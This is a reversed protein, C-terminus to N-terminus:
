EIVVKKVAMGKDTTVHLFYMGKTNMILKSQTSTEVLRGAIDYVRITQINIDGSVSVHVIGNSPVPYVTVKDNLMTNENLGVGKAIIFYNPSISTLATNTATLRIRAKQTEPLTIREVTLSDAAKSRGLNMYLTDEILLDIVVSDVGTSTWKVWSKLMDYYWTEGGIPSTITLAPVVIKFTGSVANVLADSVKSIRIIANNTAAENFPYSATGSSALYKGITKFPGSAATQLEVLVSDVNVSAWSIPTTRGAIITANAAPATVTILPANPDTIYTMTNFNVRNVWQPNDIFPNRNKQVSYIYENRAIELADPPDQQHWQLLVAVDQSAPLRWTFGRLGNYRVLMYFLARALNGKQDDKPEYVTKGGADTGKKGFGTPSVTTVNVVVGFPLNSRVGNANTQDAPFLHHLDNYEPLEGGFRREWDTSGDNSPMWSQAFTHERTLIGPNNGQGTWWTFPDAYVYQLGTYVCTVAKKAATTDRALYNNVVVPAYNGYFITDAQKIKNQLDTIFTSVLPNVANYYTGPQANLSTTSASAANTIKYNEFGEPGNFPFAAFTYNTNALIYNPKLVATDDGIYAVQAGGIYDGRQYTVGDVPVETISTAQKRLVLYKETTTKNFSVTLGYTKVASLTLAPVANAPETALTGGVAYLNITFPSKEPDSNNITMTAQRTGSAGPNFYVSFTDTGGFNTTSDFAGITFDSANAGSVVISNTKLDDANGTNQITFLKAPSNGFVYTTGNVMTNSGQKLAFGVSSAPAQKIVVSDLAVNSGNEKATYFFRVYRSAQNPNDVFRTMTGTLPAPTTFVRMDTWSTGDISQQVSFTGTFAPNPSIATGKAWYSVPGPKDAFWITLYEGTADLRCATNDGGVSNAAGSYTLNGNTGLGPTWGNPPTSIGPVSFNWLTPLVAQSFALVPMMCM